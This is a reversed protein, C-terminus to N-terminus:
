TSMAMMMMMLEDRWRESWRVDSGRTLSDESVRGDAVGDHDVYLKYKCVCRGRGTGLGQQEEQM